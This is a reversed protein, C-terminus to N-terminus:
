LTLPEGAWPSSTACARTGLLCLAQFCLCSFVSSGFGTEAMGGGNVRLVDRQLRAWGTAIRLTLPM